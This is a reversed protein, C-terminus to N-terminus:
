EREEKIIWGDRPCPYFKDTDITIIVFECKDLQDRKMNSWRQKRAKNLFDDKEKSNLPSADQSSIELDWKYGQRKGREVYGKREGNIEVKIVFMDTEMGRM